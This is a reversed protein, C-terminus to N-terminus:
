EDGRGGEDLLATSTGLPHPTPDILRRATELNADDRQHQGRRSVYESRGLRPIPLPSLRQGVGVGARGPREHRPRLVGNQRDRYSPRRIAVDRGTAADFGAEATDTGYNGGADIPMPAASPADPSALLKLELMAPLVPMHRGTALDRAKLRHALLADMLDEHAFGVAAAIAAADRDAPPLSERVQRWLYYRGITEERTWGEGEPGALLGAPHPQGHWLAVLDDAAMDASLALFTRPSPLGVVKVGRVIRRGDGAGCTLAWVISGGGVLTILLSLQPVLMAAVVTVLAIGLAPPLMGDAREDHNQMEGLIRSFEYWPMWTHWQIRAHFKPRRMLNAM